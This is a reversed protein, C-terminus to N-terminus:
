ETLAVVSVSNTDVLKLVTDDGYCLTIIDSVQAKIQTRLLDIDVMCEFDKHNSSEAYQITETGSSKTTSVQLGDSTFALNIDGAEFQGVFLAIRDLLQLITARSIKCESEFEKDLLSKIPEIQFDDLYPLQVGYVTCEDTKFVLKNTDSYVEINDSTNVGLLDVIESSLLKPEDFVPTTLSTVKFTDTGIISDGFYYGTYCPNDMKTALAPKVTNIASKITALSIVGLNTTNTLASVPDPYTVILGDEDLPLALNYKGNGTVLLSNDTIELEIFESTMRAVLKSFLDAEVVAYFDEGGIENTIYLYNTADTAVLTLKGSVVKIAILSTIPILKNNGVGKMLKSMMEQLKITKIQM